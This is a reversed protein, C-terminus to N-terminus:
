KSTGDSLIIRYKNRKSILSWIFILGVAYILIHVWHFSVFINVAMIVLMLIMILGLTWNVSMGNWAAQERYIRQRSGFSRDPIYKVLQDFNEFEFDSLEIKQGKNDELELSKYMTTKIEWSKWHTRTVDNLVINKIRFLFPNYAMLIGNRIWVINLRLVLVIVVAASLLIVFGMFIMGVLPIQASFLGKENWLFLLMGGCFIMVGVFFSTFVNFIGIVCKLSNRNNAAAMSSTFKLFVFCTAARFTQFISGSNAM